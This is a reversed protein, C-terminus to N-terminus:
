DKGILRERENEVKERKTPVVKISVATHVKFPNNMFSNNM